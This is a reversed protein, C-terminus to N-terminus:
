PAPTSRIFLDLNLGKIGQTVLSWLIAALAALAFATVVVCFVKFAVDGVRRRALKAASM